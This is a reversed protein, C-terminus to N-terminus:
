DWIFARCKSSKKDWMGGILGINVCMQVIAMLGMIICVINCMLVDFYQTNPDYLDRYKWSLKALYGSMGACFIKYPYTKKYWEGGM